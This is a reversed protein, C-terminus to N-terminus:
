TIGNRAPTNMPTANVPVERTRSTIRRREAQQVQLVAAARNVRGALRRFKNKGGRRAANPLGARAAM